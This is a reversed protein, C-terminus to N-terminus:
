LRGRIAKRLGEFKGELLRATTQHALANEALDSMERELSVNTGDHFLLSEVPRASPTVRVRGSGDVSFERGEFALRRHPADARRDLAQGLAKQFAQVDLQRAKYGPTGLNAVNEAITRNRSETFSLMATLAPTPGGNVLRELWATM